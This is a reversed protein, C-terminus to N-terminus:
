LLYQQPTARHHFLREQGPVARDAMVEIRMNIFCSM